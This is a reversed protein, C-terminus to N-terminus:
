HTPTTISNPCLLPLIFAGSLLLCSTRLHLVEPCADFCIIELPSALIQTVWPFAPKSPSIAYYIHM